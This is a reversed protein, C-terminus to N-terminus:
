IGMYMAWLNGICQGYLSFTPTVRSTWLTGYLAWINGMYQGYMVMCSFPPSVELQGCPGISQGYMAWLNGMCQRYLSFTPTFRSTWLTGYFAWINDM